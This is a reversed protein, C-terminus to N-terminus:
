VKIMSQKIKAFIKGVTCKVDWYCLNSINPKQKMSWEYRTKYIGKREVLRTRNRIYNAYTVAYPHLFSRHKLSKNKAYIMMSRALNMTHRIHVNIIAQHEHKYPAGKNIHISKERMWKKSANNIIEKGGDSEFQQIHDGISTKYAYFTQFKELFEDKSKMPHVGNIGGGKDIFFAYYAQKKLGKVRTPGYVDGVITHGIKPKRKDIITKRKVSSRTMNGLIHAENIQWKKTFEKHPTKFGNVANSEKLQKMRIPSMFLINDYHNYIDKAIVSAFRM